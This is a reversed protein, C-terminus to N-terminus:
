AADSPTRSTPPDLGDLCWVAAPREPVRYRRGNVEVQSM